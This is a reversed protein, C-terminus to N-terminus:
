EAEEIKFPFPYVWRYKDFASLRVDSLCFNDEDDYMLMGIKKSESGDKFSVIIDGLINNDGSCIYSKECSENVHKVIEAYYKSSIKRDYRPSVLRIEKINDVDELIPPYQNKGDQLLPDFPFPIYQASTKYEQETPVFIDTNEFKYITGINYILEPYDKHKIRISTPNEIKDEGIISPMENSNEKVYEFIKTKMDESIETYRGDILFEVSTFDSADYSVKLKEGKRIYLNQAKHVKASILTTGGINVLKVKSNPEKNKSEADGVFAKAETFEETDLNWGKLREYEEGEYVVIYNFYNNVMRLGIFGELIFIVFLAVVAIIGYKIFKKM